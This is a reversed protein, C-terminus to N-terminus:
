CWSWGLDRITAKMAVENVDSALQKISLGRGLNSRRTAPPAQLEEFTGAEGTIVVLV